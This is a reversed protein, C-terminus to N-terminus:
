LAKNKDIFPLYNELGTLLMESVGNSTITGGSIADVQHDPDTIGGKVVAVSTYKGSEDFIKKNVFQNRFFDTNIEAGLGPTEGQHDFKTGYITNLDDYLAVNGWIPGWLGRGRVPFVYYAKGDKGTMVFVPLVAEKGTKGAKNDAIIKLLEKINIDFPRISGETLQGNSFVSVIDGDTNVAIERQLHKEYLTIANAPTSPINIAALIDQMKEIRKNNEQYPKLVLAAIALLAAVLIVMISAFRFIYSNSFM